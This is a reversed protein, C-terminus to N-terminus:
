IKNSPPATVFWSNPDLTWGNSTTVINELDRLVRTGYIDWVRIVRWYPDSEALTRENETLYFGTDNNMTRSTTKVEIHRETSDPEFSLVDFPAESMRSPDAAIIEVRDALDCRDAEILQAREQEAVWEEGLLGIRERDAAKKLRRQLEANYDFPLSSSHPNRNESDLGSPVRGDNALMGVLYLYGQLDLLTASGYGLLRERVIEAVSLVASYPAWRTNFSLKIPVGYLRLLADFRGPHLPMYQHRDRLFALYALFPWKSGLRETKIYEVYNDFRQGFAKQESPGDFYLLYLQEAMATQEFPSGEFLSLYIPSASNKRNGYRNALLNQSIGSSCARAVGDLLKNPESRVLSAWTKKDKTDLPGSSLGMADRAHYFAREKYATETRVFYPHTFGRFPTGSEKEIYSLFARHGAEFGADDVVLPLLTM